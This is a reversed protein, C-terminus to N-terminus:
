DSTAADSAADVAMGLDVSLPGICSASGAPLHCYGDSRCEYEAPCVPAETGCRFACDTYTPAFCGCLWLGAWTSLVLAAAVPARM